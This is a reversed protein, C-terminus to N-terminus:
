GTEANSDSEKRTKFADALWPSTGDRMVADFARCITYPLILYYLAFVGVVAQQPASEPESGFFTGVSAFVGVGMGFVWVFKAM